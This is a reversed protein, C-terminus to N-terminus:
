QGVIAAPGVDTARKVYIDLISISRLEACTSSYRSLDPAFSRGAQLGTSCRSRSSM